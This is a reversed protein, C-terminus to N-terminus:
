PPAMRLGAGITKGEDHRLHKDRAIAGIASPL